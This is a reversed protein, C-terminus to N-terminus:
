YSLINKTIAHQIHIALSNTHGFVAIWWFTHNDTNKKWRVCIIRLHVIRVDAMHNRSSQKTVQSGRTPVFSSTHLTKEYLQLEFSFRLTRRPMYVIMDARYGVTHNICWDSRSLRTRHRHQVKSSKSQHTALPAPRSVAQHSSSTSHPLSLQLLLQVSASIQRSENEVARSFLSNRYDLRTRAVVNATYTLMATDVRYLRRIHYCNENHDESQGLPWLLMTASFLGVDIM